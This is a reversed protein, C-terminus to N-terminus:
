RDTFLRRQLLRGDYENIVGLTHRWSSQQRTNLKGLHLIQHQITRGIQELHGGILSHTIEESQEVRMVAASLLLALDEDLAGEGGAVVDLEGWAFDM